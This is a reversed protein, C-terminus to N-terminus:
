MIVPLDPQAHGSDLRDEAMTADESLLTQKAAKLLMKIQGVSIKSKGLDESSILSVAEMSYLGLSIVAATTAESRKKAATWAKVKDIDSMAHSTEDAM